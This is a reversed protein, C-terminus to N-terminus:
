QKYGRTFCLFGYSALYDKFSIAVDIDHESRGGEPFLKMIKDHYTDVYYIPKGSTYFVQFTGLTGIKTGGTINLSVECGTCENVLSDSVSVVEDM